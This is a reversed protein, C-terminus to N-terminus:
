KPNQTFEVRCDAICTGYEVVDHVEVGGVIDNSSTWRVFDGLSQASGEVLTGEEDRYTVLITLLANCLSPEGSRFTGLDASAQYTAGGTPRTLLATAEIVCTVRRNDPATYTHEFHSHQQFVEDAAAPRTALAFPLAGAALAAAARTARGTVTM